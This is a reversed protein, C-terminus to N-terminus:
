GRKNTRRERRRDHTRFEQRVAEVMREQQAAEDHILMEFSTLKKIEDSLGSLIIAKLLEIQTENSASVDYAVKFILTKKM